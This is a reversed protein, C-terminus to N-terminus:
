DLAIDQVAVRTFSQRHGNKKRHRTKSKYHFVILKKGLGHHVVNAVVKAGTVVPNGFRVGDDTSVMLVRGLEVTDGVEAPIHEVDLTQGVELKYQKGGTEVVAYM